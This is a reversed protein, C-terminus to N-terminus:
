FGLGDATLGLGEDLGLMVNANQLAQGAAGKVLNDLAAAAIVTGTREDVWVGLDCANGGHLKGPHPAQTLRVFREGAYVDLYLAEAETYHGTGLTFLELLERGFNANPRGKLNQGADLYLLM